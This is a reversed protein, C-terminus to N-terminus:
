RKIDKLAQLATILDKTVPAIFAGLTAAGVAVFFHEFHKVSLFWLFMFFVINLLFVIFQNTHTWRYDSAYQFGELARQMYSVMRNKAELYKVRDDGSAPESGTARKSDEEPAGLLLCAILHIHETPRYLAMRGALAIQAALKEIELSYLADPENSTALLELSAIAKQADETNKSRKTIWAHVLRRNYWRRVKFLDKVAQFVAMTATGVGAVTALIPGLINAILKGSDRVTDWFPTAVLPKPESIIYAFGVYTVLLFAVLLWKLWQWHKSM